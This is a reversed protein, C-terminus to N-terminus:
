FWKKYRFYLFFLTAMASMIGIIIWFDYGNGVVPTNLTNMGFISSFLSLPFTVFAMITFIKMIENEKTSVLAHNTSRLETASEILSHLRRMVHDYFEDLERLPPEFSKGFVTLFYVHADRMVDGHAVLAQKFGILKRSVKSIELVMEKEREHFIQQEIAEIQTDLYDLKKTLADYLTNMLAAFLYGGHMKQGKGGILELVEFSKKFSHFATIEEYHVTVLHTKTVYFKVDHPREIDTRKVVPYDIMIKIVRGSVTSSSRPTPVTVDSMLELPIQAELMVDRAEEATPKLLDIWTCSGTTHREIM